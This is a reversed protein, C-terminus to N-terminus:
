QLNAIASQLNESLIDNVISPERNVTPTEGNVVSTERNVIEV